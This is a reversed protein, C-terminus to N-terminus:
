QSVRAEADKGRDLGFRPEKTTGDVKIRLLTGAGEKAFFPDVPKLVWRKWGTMTQSVKADLRLTGHFDLVNQDMEYNGALDIAAGPIAFSLAKFRIVENELVFSGGMLSVVEDIKLNKPQGQGRRSLADIKDQIDSKLIKGNTIDFNGDLLIKERVKGTLPPIDLKTQLAITGSMFPEGRMALRFLDHLDGKPMSVGLRITRRVEGEHKIVAGSTTFSTSGLRAVVPKLITNGNTGDVLVEFRTSLPVPNGAFKLRFDPISAEGKATISSLSGEFQGTSRLIGAIGSFVGLDAKEFIYEGALPTDGPEDAAWPGFKGSSQIKGPPKPNDLTATYKMAVEKGVSELLLRQIDFRLPTKTTDKPLIVLTADTILVEQILVSPKGGEANDSHWGMKPREGKPPVYIEMGELTVQPVIKPSAYLLGLDLDFSFHKLGFMPPVDTRGKHRLLLGTGDVHAIAGARRTWLLHLASVKPLQVHLSALEVDGEFRDRMYRIAQDRIYPELRKSFYQAAILLAIVATLLVLSLAM